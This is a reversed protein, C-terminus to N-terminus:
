LSLKIDSLEKKFENLWKNFPDMLMQVLREAPVKCFIQLQVVFMSLFNRLTSFFM